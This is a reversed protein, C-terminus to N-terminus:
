GRTNIEKWLTTLGPDELLGLLYEVVGSIGSLLYKILLKFKSM